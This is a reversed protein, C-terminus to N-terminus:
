GEGGLEVSPCSHAGLSALSHMGGDRHCGSECSLSLVWPLGAVPLSGNDEQQLKSLIHPQAALPWMFMALFGDSYPTLM